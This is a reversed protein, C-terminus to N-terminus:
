ACCQHEEQELTGIYERKIEGGVLLVVSEGAVRGVGAKSMEVQEDFERRGFLSGGSFVTGVNSVVVEARYEPAVNAQPHQFFPPKM